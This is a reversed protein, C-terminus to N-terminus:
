QTTKILIVEFKNNIIKKVDYKKNNDIISQSFNNVIINTEIKPQNDIAYFSSAYRKLSAKNITGIWIPLGNELQYHSQWLRITLIKNHVEKIFSEKFSKDKHFSPLMAISKADANKKFNHLINPFNFKPLKQWGDKELATTINNINDAWQINLVSVKNNLLGSRKIPLINRNNNVWEQNTITEYEFIPQHNKLSSDLKLYVFPTGLIITAGLFVGVFNYYNFNESVPKRKYSINISLIIIISLLLSAIIDAVWHDGLYLRSLCIITIISILATNFYKKLSSYASGARALIIAMYGWIVTVLITHGSPYSNLNRVKFLDQPRPNDFLDKLGYIVLVSSIILIIASTLERYHKKYFLYLCVCGFVLIAIYKDYILSFIAFFTAIYQNYLGRTFHHAYTNLYIIDGKSIVSISLIIFFILALLILVGQFLSPSNLDDENHFLNLIKTCGHRICYKYGFENFNKYHHYIYQVLIRLLKIVFWIIALIIFAIIALKTAVGEPLTSLSSGLLLGPFIYIPAWLIASLVNVFTFYHPNMHLMGAIAPIIPRVPGIFRGIVISKGGHKHFFNEGKIILNSYNKFLWISRLQEKYYRGVWFSIGDGVIAGLIAAILVSWISLYGMGVFAGIIGMILIGPVFLGVIILSESLSILFVTFAALFPHHSIWEFIPQFSSTEM